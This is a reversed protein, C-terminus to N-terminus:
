QQFVLEKGMCWGRRSPLVLPSLPLDLHGTERLCTKQDILTALVVSEHGSSTFISKDQLCGSSVTHIHLRWSSVPKVQVSASGFGFCYQAILSHVTPYIGM